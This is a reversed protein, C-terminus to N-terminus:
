RGAPNRELVEQRRLPMKDIAATIERVDWPLPKRVVPRLDKDMIVLSFGRPRLQRRWESRADPDTDIVLIVDREELEPYARALLELQRIYNPDNPSDAFVVIPRNDYLQDAFVVDEAQLPVFADAAWGSFPLLAAFVFTYVSRM